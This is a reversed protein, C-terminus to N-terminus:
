NEEGNKPWRRFHTVMLFSLLLTEKPAHRASCLPHFRPCGKLWLWAEKSQSHFAFMPWSRRLPHACLLAAPMWLIVMREENKKIQGDVGWPKRRQAYVHTASFCELKILFNWSFNAFLSKFLKKNATLKRKAMKPLCWKSWQSEWFRIKTGGICVTGVFCVTGSGGGMEAEEEMRHCKERLRLHIQFCAPIWSGRSIWDAPITEPRRMLLNRQQEALRPLPRQGFLVAIIPM